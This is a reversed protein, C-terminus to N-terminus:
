ITKLESIIDSPLIGELNYKKALRDAAYGHLFVSNKAAEFPAEGMALRATIMGALVDGSGGTALGANGTMNFVVEGKESAIVTNAGKLVVVSGTNVAVRKAIDIRNESVEEVSIKCLRAMEKPHPTIVKQAKIKKLLEIDSAIANIGDADIVTPVTTYELARKVLSVSEEGNGLGCGVLMANCNEIEKLLQSNRIIPTGGFDTESPITVAEPVASCFAAYNKDCVFNKVIGVGSVLAARSSLVAAGCMGYSGTIMLATGFSGKHSNKARKKKPPMDTTLYAYEREEVGIDVVEVEGCFESTKPLVFCLKLAIFTLTLDASFCNAAFNGDASVGSPVDLAVKFASCSNMKDIIEAQENEIPRNLGIGYLADILFDCKQPIEHRIEIDKAFYSFENAPSSVPIGNPFVVCVKHGKDKLLKALVLGDGGNNGSGCVICIDSIETIINRSLFELSKRAANQMLDAFSFIGSEVADQEATRIQSVTLIKM